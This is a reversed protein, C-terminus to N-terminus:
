AYDSQYLDGFISTTQLQGSYSLINELTGVIPGKKTKISFETWIIFGSSTPYFRSISIKNSNISVQQNNIINFDNIHINVENLVYKMFLSTDIFQHWNAVLIEELKEEKFM